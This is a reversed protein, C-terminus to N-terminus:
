FFVSNNWSIWCPSSKLYFLFLLDGFLLLKKQREKTKSHKGHVLDKVHIIILKPKGSASELVYFWNCMNWKCPVPFILFPTSSHSPFPFCDILHANDLWNVPPATSFFGVALCPSMPTTTGDRSWSSEGSSPLPLGTGHEQRPFGHVSSVPLSCDRSACDLLVSCSWHLLHFNLGALLADYFM